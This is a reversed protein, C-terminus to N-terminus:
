SLFFFFHIILSEMVITNGGKTGSCGRWEMKLGLALKDATM